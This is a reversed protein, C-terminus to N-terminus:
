RSDPTSLPGQERTRYATLKVRLFTAVAAVHGDTFKIQYPEGSISSGTACDAIFDEATEVRSGAMRLKLRLHDVAGQSDYETGNRIFRADRLAAISGILYDIRNQEIAQRGFASPMAFAILLLVCITM